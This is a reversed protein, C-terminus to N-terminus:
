YHQKIAQDIKHMLILQNRKDGVVAITDSYAPSEVLSIEILYATRVYRYDKNPFKIIKDEANGFSVSVHALNNNEISKVTMRSRLDNPLTMKFFLGIDDEELQLTGKEVSAIERSRDHNILALQTNDKLSETFAGRTFQEQFLRDNERLEDSWSDWKIAYGSIIQKDGNQKISQPKVSRIESTIM